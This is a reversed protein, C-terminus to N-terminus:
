LSGSNNFDVGMICCIIYLLAAYPWSISILLSDIFGLSKINAIFCLLALLLYFSIGIWSLPYLIM